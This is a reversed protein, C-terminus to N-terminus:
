SEGKHLRPHLRALLRDIVLDLFEDTVLMEGSQGSPHSAVHHGEAGNGRAVSIIEGELGVLLEDVDPQSNRLKEIKKVAYCVTSHDRGSYFRGIRTTSWRGIHKALYMAIQRNFAAPQANGNVRTQGLRAPLWTTLSPCHSASLGKLLREKM